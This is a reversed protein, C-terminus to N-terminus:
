ALPHKSVTCVFNKDKILFVHKIFSNVVLTIELMTLNVLNCCVILLFMVLKFHLFIVKCVTM